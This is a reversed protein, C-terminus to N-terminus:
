QLLPFAAVVTATVVATIAAFHWYLAANTIDIDHRADMRGPARRAVCYMQMIMGIVGHLATWIVLLWVTASYVHQKPDVGALWPGALMACSGAVSSLSGATLGTYFLRARDAKNWRRALVTLAWGGLLLIMGLAPWLGGSRIVAQPPFDQRLTWYFFYGFVLSVFATIDALMTIFMAWWGVSDAGSCYLPLTVGSGVYKKEKEPIIATGNWLWYLIAGLALLASVAAPWWLKYTPFIFIGGTFVAALLAIFDPGSVRLCQVPKADIVSTLLMERKEEEADPLYFRGEDVDTMFNPQDWLPYRSDIEPVSRVGWPKGPMEQLWELTGSGWPNRLSLPQRSKPRFIDYM